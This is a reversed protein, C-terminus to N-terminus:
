IKHLLLTCHSSLICHANVPRLLSSATHRNSNPFHATIYVFSNQPDKLNRRLVQLASHIEHMATESSNYLPYVFADQPPSHTIVPM